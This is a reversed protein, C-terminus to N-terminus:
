HPQNLVTQQESGFRRGFLLGEASSPDLELCVADERLNAPPPTTTTVIYQFPPTREAFEEKELTGMLSLFNEYLGVSMDAERPCDHILLGPLSNRSGASDLMCAIDGLLVELVRYAEGGRMSLRFPRDEDRPDFLGFAGDPLLRKTLSDTIEALSKEHSSRDQHLLALKTRIGALEREISAIEAQASQIDAQAKASGSSSDWRALEELLSPWKSAEVETTRRALRIKNQASKLVAEQRELEQIKSKLEDKRALATVARSASEAMAKQLNKKDRHDLLSAQELKKIEANVYSCQSFPINGEECHSTLGKLQLLKAGISSYAQEDGRQAAEAFNYEAEARECEGQRLKLEARFEALDQDAKDQKLEWQALREAADESAVKIRQQVSDGFLDDARIPLEDPLSGMARLNSEIRRKILTPERHLEEEKQVAQALSAELTAGQNMLNSENEDVLGLVARMVLPPDQRSRQLGLGEGERWAFFSKFRSGQDRSIWALVHRWEITQGTDPIASPSVPRMMDSALKKLFDRDSSEVDRSWIDDTDNGAFAGGDKHSNFYRVLTFPEGEVHVVAAVGGKPFEGFLEDRFEAVAKSPDGMCFRLLLCLSTKGVGHGAAHLGKARGAAPEKAWVVNVGRRFPVDQVIKEASPESFVLLREFWLRPSNRDKPLHPILDDM